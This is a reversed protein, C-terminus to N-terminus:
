RVHRPPASCRRLQPHATDSALATGKGACCQPAIPRAIHVVHSHAGYHAGYLGSRCARGEIGRTHPAPATHHHAHGTDADAEADGECPWPITHLKRAPPSRQGDAREPFEINCVPSRRRLKHSFRRDEELAEAASPGCVGAEYESAGTCFQVIASARSLM